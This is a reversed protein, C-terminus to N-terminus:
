AAAEHPRTAPTPKDADQSTASGHGRAGGWRWVPGIRVVMKPLSNSPISHPDKRAVPPANPIARTRWRSAVPYTTPLPTLFSADLLTLAAAIMVGAMARRISSRGGSRNAGYALTSTASEFGTERELGRLSERAKQNM